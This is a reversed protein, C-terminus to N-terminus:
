PRELELFLVEPTQGQERKVERWESPEWPPFFTDAEVDRDIQTLFLRTALPLAEAYLRAGGIIMPLPDSTRALALAADLSPAVEAGPAERLTRSVVINRREVLPKGLSEWTARGMIVAHHLTVAKFHRLDEPIRWPLANNKGIAGRRAVAVVLGLPQRTM